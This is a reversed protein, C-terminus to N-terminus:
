IRSKSENSIVEQSKKLIKKLKVKKTYKKSDTYKFYGYYSVVKYADELSVNESNRKLKIFVKNARNFIRKRVTTKYSYIKYGMMDIPRSDLPFLQCTPKLELGM